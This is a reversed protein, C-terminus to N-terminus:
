LFKSVAVVLIDEKFYRIRLFSSWSRPQYAPVYFTLYPGVRLLVALHLLTATAGQRFLRERLPPLDRLIFSAIARIGLAQLTEMRRFFTLGRRRGAHQHTSSIAFSRRSHMFTLRSAERARLRSSRGRFVGNEFAGLFLEALGDFPALRSTSISGQPSFYM